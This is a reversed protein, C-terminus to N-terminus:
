EVVLGAQNFHLRRPELQLVSQLCAGALLRFATTTRQDNTQKGNLYGALILGSVYVLRDHLLQKNRNSLQTIQPAASMIETLADMLNDTAEDSPEPADNYATVCTAIFFTFATAINNSRGTKAVEVEYAKKTERLLVLLAAQEDPNTTLGNVLARDVGLNGLPTFYLTGATLAPAPTSTRRAAATRRTRKKKVAPGLQDTPFPPPMESLFGTVPKNWDIKPNGPNTPAGPFQAVAIFSCFLIVLGSCLSKM